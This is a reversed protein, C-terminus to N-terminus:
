FQMAKTQDTVTRVVVTQLYIEYPYSKDWKHGSKLFLSEEVSMTRREKSGTDIQQPTM